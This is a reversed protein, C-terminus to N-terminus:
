ILNNQGYCSEDLLVPLLELSHSPINQQVNNFSQKLLELYPLFALFSQPGLCAAQGQHPNYMCEETFTAKGPTQKSTTRPPPLNDEMSSCTKNKWTHEMKAKSLFIYYTLLPQALQGICVLHCSLDGGHSSYVRFCNVSCRCELVTDHTDVVTSVFVGPGCM